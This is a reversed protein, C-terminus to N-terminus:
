PLPAAVTNTLEFHSLIMSSTTAGFGDLRIGLDHTGPALSNTDGAGASGIYAGEENHRPLHREDYKGIIDGDLYMTLVSEGAGAYDIHFLLTNVPTTTTIKLTVIAPEQGTGDAKLETRLQIGAGEEFLAFTSPVEDSALVSGNVQSPTSTSSSPITAQPNDALPPTPTDPEIPDPTDLPDNQAVALPETIDNEDSAADRTTYFYAFLGGAISCICVVAIIIGIILKQKHTLGPPQAPTIPPQTDPNDGLALAYAAEFDEETYGLTIIENHLDQKTVGLAIREKIPAILNVNM